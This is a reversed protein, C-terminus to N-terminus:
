QNYEKVPTFHSYFSKTFDVMMDQSCSSPLNSYM